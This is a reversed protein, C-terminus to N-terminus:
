DRTMAVTGGAGGGRATGSRGAACDGAGGADHGRDEFAADSRSLIRVNAM